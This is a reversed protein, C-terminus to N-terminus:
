KDKGLLGALFMVIAGVGTLVQAFANTLIQQDDTNVKDPFLVGAIMIVGGIVATLTTRWDKANSLKM